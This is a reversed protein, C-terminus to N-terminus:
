ETIEKSSEEEEEEIEFSEEIEEEYESDDDKKQLKLAFSDEEVHSTLRILTQPPLNNWHIENGAFDLIKSIVISPIEDQGVALIGKAQGMSLNDELRLLKLVVETQKLALKQEGFPLIELINRKVADSNLILTMELTIGNYTTDCIEEKQQSGRFIPVAKIFNDKEGLFPDERLAHILSNMLVQHDKLWPSKNAKEIAKLLDRAFHDTALPTSPPQIQNQSSSIIEECSTGSKSVTIKFNPKKEFPIEEPISSYNTVDKTFRDSKIKSGYTPFGFRDM